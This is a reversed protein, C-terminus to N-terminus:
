GRELKCRSFRWIGFLRSPTTTINIYNRDM